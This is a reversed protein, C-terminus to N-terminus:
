LRRTRVPYHREPEEDSPARELTLEGAPPDVTQPDSEGFAVPTDSTSSSNTIDNMLPQPINEDDALQALQDSRVVHKRIHDMHRNCTRGDQLQIEFSLPGTQARVHGPLWREGQGFNLFFVEEVM